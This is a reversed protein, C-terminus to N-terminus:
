RRKPIYPRPRNYRSYDVPGEQDDGESKESVAASRHDEEESVASPEPADDDHDDDDHDQRRLRKASARFLGPPQVLQKRDESVATQATKQIIVRVEGTLPVIRTDLISDYDINSTGNNRRHFTRALTPASFEGRWPMISLITHGKGDTAEAKLESNFGGFEIYARSIKAVKDQEAPHCRSVDIRNNLNAEDAPKARVAVVQYKDSSPRYPQRSM